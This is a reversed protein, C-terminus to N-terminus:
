KYVVVVTAICDKDCVARMWHANFGEPLTEIRTAGAKLFYEFAPVFSDTHDFDFELRFTVTEDSHNTLAITKEDYGTMLFPLSPEDVKVPENRWVCGEGSPKGLKWLDDIQGFWLGNGSEDAFFRGDANANQKAGCLVLLGRWSCFDVIRKDHTAVPRMKEFDPTRNDDARPMEYFTGHINGLWRESQVERVTRMQNDTTPKDFGPNGRPVLFERGKADTLKIAKDLVTVYQNDIKCVDSVFRVEADTAGSMKRDAFQLKSPDNPDIEIERYGDSMPQGGVNTIRWQLSRNRAAPRMVGEVATGTETTVSDLADFIAQETADSERPTLYHFYATATCNKDATLRVWEGAITQPVIWHADHGDVRIERIKRWHGNGTEDVDVAFTVPGDADHKLHLVRQEYGAFLFPDSPVGAEVPDDRWVGGWGTAPGFRKIQDLTGFWLNSQAQGCMPNEMMAAEDAALIIKGQWHTVDPIYRLHTALPRIGATNAAAFTKPFEFMTAHKIMMLRGPAYERIRPWETYWGHRHDFAHSAKPLRFTSWRGDDLLKLLVSNKDWGMAWLPTTDDPSGYIGNPGTVDTFKKREVIKFTERGDWEVLAGAEEDHKAPGGVLLDDYGTTAGPREGNNAFVVRNQATYAGKGHWGPFPKHYLKTVALSNVDVEYIMGEMDFFYVTTEPSHLHRMVATMRGVLKQLDCARVNRDADIFYPGIILQNSEAHIMRSAHTGGVSEPRIVLNMKEDVEYLKDYSGRIQHQPYTIYWLRDVWPVVAGIGAEGHARRLADNSIDPPQNHTALHPYVGGIQLYRDNEQAFLSSVLCVSVALNLSFFSRIMFDIVPHHQFFVIDKHGSEDCCSVFPNAANM